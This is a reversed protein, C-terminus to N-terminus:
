MSELVEQPNKAQDVHSILFVINNKYPELM